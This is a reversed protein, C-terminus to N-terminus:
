DLALMAELLSMAGEGSEDEGILPDLRGAILLTAFGHVMTWARAVYARSALSSDGSSQSVPHAAAVTDTLLALSRHAERVLAPRARDLRESRFMLQFLGPNAVAFEVYARGIANLRALATPQGEAAALMSDTLRSVGRAALESLLGTKDDFHNKPAAHSSGAGRAAARLTLGTIGERELIRESTELLAERLAGHHYPKKHEEAPKATKTTSKGAM